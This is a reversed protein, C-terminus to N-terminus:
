GIYTFLVNVPRNAYATGLGATELRVHTADVWLRILSGAVSPVPVMNGSVDTVTSSIGVIKAQTLGHVWGDAMGIIPSTITILKQKVAPAAEGLKVFGTFNAGALPAYDVVTSALLTSLNEINTENDILWQLFAPNSTFAEMVEASAAFDFVGQMNESVHKIQDMNGAVLKVNDYASGIFRDILEAENGYPSAITKM